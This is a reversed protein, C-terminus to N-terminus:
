GTPLASFLVVIYALVFILSLVAFGKQLRDSPSVLPVIALALFLLTAYSNLGAKLHGDLVFDRVFNMCLLVILLGFFWVRNRYYTAQLNHTEAAASEPLLIACLAYLLAPTLLLVLFVAFNWSTHRFLSIDSWWHQVIALFLTAGWVPVPWYMQTVHRHNLIRAFGILLHTLGLGLVISILM